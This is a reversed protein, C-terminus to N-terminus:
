RDEQMQEMPWQTMTVMGSKVRSMGVMESISGPRNMPSKALEESNDVSASLLIVAMTDRALLSDSIQLRGAFRSSTGCALWKNIQQASEGVCSM